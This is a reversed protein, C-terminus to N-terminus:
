EGLVLILMIIDMIYYFLCLLLSSLVFANKCVHVNLRKYINLSLFLQSGKITSTAESMM